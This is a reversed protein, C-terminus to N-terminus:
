KLARIFSEIDSAMLKLEKAFELAEKPTEGKDLAKGLADAIIQEGNIVKIIENRLNKNFRGLSKEQLERYTKM